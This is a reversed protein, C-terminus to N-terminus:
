SVAAILSPDDEIVDLSATVAAVAAPPLAASFVFGRATHRLFQILDRRGAVFGGVAPLTKSLSGSLMEVDQPSMGFYEIIGHGTKGLVGLSHAEDVM